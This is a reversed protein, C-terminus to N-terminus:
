YILSNLGLNYIQRLWGLAVALLKRRPASGRLQAKATNVWSSKAMESKFLSMEKM